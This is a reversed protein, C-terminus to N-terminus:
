RKRFTYVGCGYQTGVPVDEVAKQVHLTGNDDVFDFNILDFEDQIPKWSLVSQPHFVRHANFCVQDKAGIPFSLYLRGKEKVLSAINRLGTIHGNPDINDTYRGLGFHELAHLCSVSDAREITFDQTLDAQLFTINEHASKELPRIDIVEVKRYSALHAVFGDIRSGIDIHRDPSDLYVLHAVRLDQHFYHGESQGAKEEYDDLIPLLRSVKGGLSKWKRLEKLYRFLHKNSKIIRLNLGSQRFLVKITAKM